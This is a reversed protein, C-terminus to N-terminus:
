VKRNILQNITKIQFICKEYIIKLYYVIFLTDKITEEIKM